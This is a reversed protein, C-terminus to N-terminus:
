FIIKCVRVAALLGVIDGIIAAIIIKKTYKVRTKRFYVSLTYFTTETSAMIVSAIRGNLSDPSFRGLIDGLLGLSAGGSISRVMALPMIDDPIKLFKTVPSLFNIIVGFAGSVRLMEAAVLIALISPYIGAVTKMGDFVGDTFSKYVETKRMSFLLISMIVFPIIYRSM